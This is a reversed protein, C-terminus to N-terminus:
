KIFNVNGLWIARLGIIKDISLFKSIISFSELYESHKQYFQQEMIKARYKRMLKLYKLSDEGDITVSM